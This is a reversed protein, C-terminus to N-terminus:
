DDKGRENRWQELREKYRNVMRDWSAENMAPGPLYMKWPPIPAGAQEEDNLSEGHALKM